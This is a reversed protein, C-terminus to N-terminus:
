KYAAAQLSFLYWLLNVKEFSSRIHSEEILV